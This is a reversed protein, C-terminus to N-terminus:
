AKCDRSLWRPQKLSSDRYHLYLHGLSKGGFQRKSTHWHDELRIRYFVGVSNARAAKGLLLAPLGMSSSRPLGVLCLYKTSSFVKISYILGMDEDNIRISYGNSDIYRSCIATFDFDDLLPKITNPNNADTEWCKRKKSVQEYIHLTYSGTTSIPAAVLAYVKPNLPLSAGFLSKTGARSTQTIMSIAFGLSM